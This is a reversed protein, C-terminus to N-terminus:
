QPDHVEPRRFISAHLWRSAAPFRRPRDGGRLAGSAGGVVIAPHRLRSICPPSKRGKRISFHRRNRTCANYTLVFRAAEQCGLAPLRGNGKGCAVCQIRSALFGTGNQYPPCTNGSPLCSVAAGNRVRGPKPTFSSSARDTSWADM